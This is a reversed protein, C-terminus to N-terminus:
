RAVSKTGSEQDLKAGSPSIVLSGSWGRWLRSTCCFGLEGHRRAWASGQRFSSKRSPRSGRANRSPADAVAQAVGGPKYPKSWSHSRRRYVPIDLGSRADAQVRTGLRRTSAASKSISALYGQLVRASYSGNKFNPIIIDQAHKCRAPPSSITHERARVSPAPGRLLRKGHVSEATRVTGLTKEASRGSPDHSLRIDQRNPRGQKDPSTQACTRAQGDRNM